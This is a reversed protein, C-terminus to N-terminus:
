DPLRPRALVFLTLKAEYTMGSLRGSMLLPKWAEFLLEVVRDRAGCSAFRELNREELYRALQIALFAQWDDAERCECRPMGYENQKTKNVSFKLERFPYCINEKEKNARM